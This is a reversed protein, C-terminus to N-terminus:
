RLVLPLYVQFYVFEFSGIDCHPGQPRAIGRQDFGSVPAANCTADDAANMAPSGALLAFTQTPGGNDALFGLMPDTNSLSGSVSGWGCAAGDEINNGANTIPGGCNGGSNNALITNRLTMSGADNFVGGGIGIFFGPITRAENGSFTSNVITTTSPYSASYIAGGQGGFNVINGSFTSNSVILTGGNFIGGGYGVWIDVFNGSFTCQNIELTGRNLIGAGFPEAADSTYGNAITLNNLTLSAGVDVVAVRVTSNGSITLPLGTGNITLPGGAATINPLTSGLTVTGTLTRYFTITNAGGWNNSANIAERLTCNGPANECATDDTDALDNVVYGPGLQLTSEYAGIDCHPGYRRSVGRQDLRNIPADRCVTDDGKDIAPSGPQLAMTLTPGGNDALPDLMPDTGSFSGGGLNCSGDDVINFGHDTIGGKASGCNTDGRSNALITNYLGVEGLSSISGAIPASNGYFTSNIVTTAGYNFLGGGSIESTNDVFTSNALTAYGGNVYVGGGEGSSYNNSFTSNTINLTGAMLFVGGGPGGETSNTSFTSNNINLTGSMNLVGAGMGPTSNGSFTSNEITVTGGGNYVGAGGAGVGTAVNGSFICNSINLTSSNIVGSGYTAQGDAITLEHLTLPATVNLIGVAHGGNITVTQGTGDMTLGALDTIVPLTSVLNIDGSVGFTITDAGARANAATIAEVLTCNGPANECAGDNGVGLSNVVFNSDTQGTSEYAGIDYGAGQPRAIGRQDTAPASNPANYIVGDIAPSGTGLAFTLTPGGHDELFSLLPNTSSMSYHDSGWGCTTGSDINNGGNIITGGCNGSSFNNALISNLLTLTWAAYNYIASGIVATNGSFTSNIVWATGSNYFAGGIYASNDSFTSNTIMVWGGDSFIAGGYGFTANGSFTSNSVTLNGENYIGGGAYGFYPDDQGDAITLHDLTLPGGDSNYIVQVDHNGSIIVKQGSGDITLGWWWDSVTLAQHLIITGSLSFTITDFGIGAACDANTASDDNANQIAERLTCQGDGAVTDALSNVVINGAAHVLSAPTFLSSILTVLVLVRISHNKM